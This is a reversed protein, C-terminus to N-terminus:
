RFRERLAAYFNVLGIPSTVDGQVSRALQDAVGNAIQAAERGFDAGHIKNTAEFLSEDAATGIEADGGLADSPAGANPRLSSRRVRGACSISSLNRGDADM